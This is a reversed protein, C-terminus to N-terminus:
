PLNYFVRTTCVAGALFCVSMRTEDRLTQRLGFRSKPWAVQLATHQTRFLQPNATLDLRSTM